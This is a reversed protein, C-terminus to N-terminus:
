EFLTTQEWMLLASDFIMLSSPYKSLYFETQTVKEDQLRLKNQFFDYVSKIRYIHKQFTSCLRLSPLNISAEETIISTTNETQKTKWKPVQGILNWKFFKFDKWIFIKIM